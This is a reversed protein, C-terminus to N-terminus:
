VFVFFNEVFGLLYSSFVVSFNVFYLSFNYEM